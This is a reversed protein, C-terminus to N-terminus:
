FRGALGAAGVGLWPSMHATLTEKGKPATLLLTFGAALGVGAAVFGATSVPRLTNYDDVNDHEASYCGQNECEPSADLDQKKSVLMAATIGGVALGVTGIGVSVWGLIRQGTGPSPGTDPTAYAPPQRSPTSPAAPPSTGSAPGPPTFSLTLTKTEGEALMVEATVHQDGLRGVARRVGPNTPRKLALLAPPVDKGDLQVQVQSPPAGDVVLKLQPIRPLLKEREEAAVTKAEKQLEVDGGTVELRTVELYRESAEVLQGLQAMARATWLGLTPASVVAYARNLKVLAAEYQGQKYANLGEKGVQRAAARASEDVQQAMAPAGMFLVAALLLLASHRM